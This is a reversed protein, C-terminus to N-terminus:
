ELKLHGPSSPQLLVSAGRSSDGGCDGPGDASLTFAVASDAPRNDSGVTPQQAPQEEHPRPSQQSSGGRVAEAIRDLILLRCSPSSLPPLPSPLASPVGITHLVRCM